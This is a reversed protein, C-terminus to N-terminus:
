DKKLIFVEKLKNFDVAPTVEIDLLLNDSKKTVKSVEGIYLDRPFAGGLGSTFVKDAKVVSTDMDFLEGTVKGELNGKGVGGEQTRSVTFSVSSGGDIISIVKSWNSGVDLVRGVLGEVIVDNEIEAGQIIIDGKKVGDKEGKNIMFKEFWNGPDKGIIEARTLEYGTNDLMEYEKKLFEKRSIVQEQKNVQDKLKVIEKELKENKKKYTFVNKISYIGDSVGNSAKSLVNQLPLMLGGLGSEAKTIQDRGSVTIGIIVVLIITVFTVIM